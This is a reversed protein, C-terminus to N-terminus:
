KMESSLCIEGLSFTIVTPNLRIRPPSSSYFYNATFCNCNPSLRIDRDCLLQMYEKRREEKEKRSFCTAFCTGRTQKRDPKVPSSIVINMSAKGSVPIYLLFRDVSLYKSCHHSLQFKTKGLMHCSFIHQIYTIIKHHTRINEYWILQIYSSIM